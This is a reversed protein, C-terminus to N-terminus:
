KDQEKDIDKYALKVEAIKEFKIQTVDEYIQELKTQYDKQLTDQKQEITTWVEQIRQQFKEEFEQLEDDNLFYASSKSQIDFNVSVNNAQM